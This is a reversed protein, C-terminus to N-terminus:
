NCHHTFRARKPTGAKIISSPIRIGEINATSADLHARGVLNLPKHSADLTSGIGDQDVSSTQLIFRRAYLGLNSPFFRYAGLNSPFFRCAGFSSVLSSEMESPQFGKQRM